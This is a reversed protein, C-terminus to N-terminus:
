GLQKTSRWLHSLEWFLYGKIMARLAPHLPGAATKEKMLKTSNIVNGKLVFNKQVNKQNKV